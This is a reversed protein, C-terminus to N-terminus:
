GLVKINKGTVCVCDSVSIEGKCSRMFLSFIFFATMNVHRTKVESLKYDEPDYKWLTKWLQASEMCAYRSGQQTQREESGRHLRVRLRKWMGPIRQASMKTGEWFINRGHLVVRAGQWFVRGNGKGDAVDEEGNPCFCRIKSLDWCVGPM